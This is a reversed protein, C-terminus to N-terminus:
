KEDMCCEPQSYVVHRVPGQVAFATILHRGVGVRAVGCFTSTPFAVEKNVLLRTNSYTFDQGFDEGFCNSAYRHPAPQHSHELRSFTRFTLLCDSATGM